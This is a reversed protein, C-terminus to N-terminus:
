LSVMRNKNYFYHHQMQIEYEFQEDYLKIIKGKHIKYLYKNYYIHNKILYVENFNYDSHVEKNNDIYTEISIKYLSGNFFYVDDNYFIAYEDCKNAYNTRYYVKSDKPMFLVINNVAIGILSNNSFIKNKINFCYDFNYTQFPLIDEIVNIVTTFYFNDNEKYIKFVDDNIYITETYYDFFCKGISMEYKIDYINKTELDILYKYKWLLLEKDQSNKLLHCGYIKCINESSLTYLDKNFEKITKFGCYCEQEEFNLVSNDNLLIDYEKNLYKIKNVDYLKNNSVYYKMYGGLFLNSM